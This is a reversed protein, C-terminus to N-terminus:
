SSTTVSFDTVVGSIIPLVLDRLLRSVIFFTFLATLASSLASMFNVRWAVSEFPILSLFRGIMTYVPNGPPHPLGLIYSTAIYEGSDWFPVTPTLTRIYAFIPVGFAFVALLQHWRKM